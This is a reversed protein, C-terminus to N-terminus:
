MGAIYANVLDITGETSGNDADEITVYHEALRSRAFDCVAMLTREIVAAENWTPITLLIKM